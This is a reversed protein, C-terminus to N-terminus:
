RFLVIMKWAHIAGIPNYNNDIILSSETEEEVKIIFGLIIDKNTEPQESRNLLDDSVCLVTNIPITKNLEIKTIQTKFSSQYKPNIFPEIWEITYDKKGKNKLKFHYENGKLETGSIELDMGVQTLGKIVSVVSGDEKDIYYSAAPTNKIPPNHAADINVHWVQIDKNKTSSFSYKMKTQSNFRTWIKVDRYSDKEAQILAIKEAKEASIPTSKNNTVIFISFLLISIINL